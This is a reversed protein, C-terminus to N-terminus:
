RQDAPDGSRADRRGRWADLDINELDLNDLDKFDQDISEGGELGSFEELVARTIRSFLM